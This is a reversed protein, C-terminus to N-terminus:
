LSKLRVVYDTRVVENSYNSKSEEDSSISKAIKETLENNKKLIEIVEEAEDTSDDALTYIISQIRLSIAAAIGIISTTFAFKLGELLIMVSELKILMLM